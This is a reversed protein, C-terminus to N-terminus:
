KSYFEVILSEEVQYDIDDRNPERLVTFAFQEPQFELWSPPNLQEKEDIIEKIKKHKKGVDTLEVKDGVSVMFSPINVIKGNVKFHRHLVMQRADSRSDAVGGRFVVNDM